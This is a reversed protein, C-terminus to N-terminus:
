WSPGPSGETHKVADKSDGAALSPALEVHAALPVVRVLSAIRMEKKFFLNSNEPAPCGSRRRDGALLHREDQDAYLVGDLGGSNTGRRLSTTRVANGSSQDNARCQGFVSKSPAAGRKSTFLGGVTATM